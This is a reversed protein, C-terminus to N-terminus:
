VHRSTMWKLLFYKSCQGLQVFLKVQLILYCCDDCNSKDIVTLPAGVAGGVM